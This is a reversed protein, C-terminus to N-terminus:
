QISAASTIESLNANLKHSYELDNQLKSVQMNLRDLRAALLRALLIGYHPQTKISNVFDNKSVKILVTTGNSIVTASRKNSLLFSMEGLFMDDPTLKSVLRDGSFIDLTGSVIYYLFNSKEGEKFIIDGHTFKVEQQESFIGPITNSENALHEIEFSVENGRDNYRLNKVYLGAMLIGRGHLELGRGQDPNSMRARWDFGQGQDKIQFISKERTIKYSFFVKRRRIEIDKCKLRILDLIDGHEDLWKTKESYTINCNGHEVANMLLEFLGVHLREKGDQNVYGLNYLYNPILNAYTGVNFPDNDMVLSGSISKLLYKQLDRQFIVQRNQILIKLVRFFGQVFETRTMAAVVNLNKSVEQYTKRDKQSFVVVLGAYHLWQDKKIEEIVQLSSVGPDSFHIVCIEPLEYKLFEIAQKPNSLFEPEFFDQFKQSIQSIKANLQLDSSIVAMKRM